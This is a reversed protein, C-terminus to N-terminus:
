EEIKGDEILDLLMMLWRMMKENEDKLDNYLSFMEDFAAIINKANERSVNPNNVTCDVVYQRLDVIHANIYHKVCDTDAIEKLGKYDQESIDIKIKM